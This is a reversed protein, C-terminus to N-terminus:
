VVVLKALREKLKMTVLPEAEVLTKDKFELRVTEQNGQPAFSAALEHARLPRTAHVLCIVGKGNSESPDEYLIVAVRAEPANIILDDIVGPLVSPDAGAMTFDQRTLLTWVLKHIPDHKLRALARGWLRLVPVTRTRYFHHVIEERRAGRTVLESAIHLTQPTVNSTKFSKTKGIMGALLATAIEEDILQRDIEHALAFLLEGNATANIDVHNIQGHHENAPNHDFNVVPVKYFFDANREFLSGLSAMDTVGITCILDFRFDGNQARVDESKWNGNKPILAIRLKGDRVDYSLEKIPTKAVDVEIVFKQLNELSPKITKIAPIFSLETPTQWDHSVIEVRKGMKQLILSLAVASAPADHTHDHAFTVLVSNAREITKKIQDIETLAM